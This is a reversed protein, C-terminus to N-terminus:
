EVCHKFWVHLIITVTVRSTGGTIPNATTTPGDGRGRDRAGGEKEGVVAPAWQGISLGPSMVNLLHVCLCM